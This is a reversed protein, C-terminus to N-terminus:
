MRMTLPVSLAAPWHPMAICADYGMLVLGLGGAGLGVGGPGAGGVGGGLGCGFTHSAEM